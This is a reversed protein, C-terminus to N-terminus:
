HKFCKPLVNIFDIVLVIDLNKYLIVKKHMYNYSFILKM